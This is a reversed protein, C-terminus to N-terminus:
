DPMEKTLWRVIAEMYLLARKGDKVTTSLLRTSELAEKFREQSRLLPEMADLVEDTPENAWAELFADLAQGQDGLDDRMVTGVQLLVRAREAPDVVGELRGLLVEVELAASSATSSVEVEVPVSGDSSSQSPAHPM